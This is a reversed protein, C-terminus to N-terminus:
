EESGAEPDFIELPPIESSEGASLNPLIENEDLPFSLLGRLKKSSHTEQIFVSPNKINVSKMYTRYKYGGKILELLRHSINDPLYGIFRNKSNSVKIKHKSPEIEVQDGISLTSLVSPEGVSVLPIVKSKGPEEVFYINTNQPIILNPDKITKLRSINNKAIQNKPDVDLVSRFSAVAKTKKGLMSYAIGLRNLTPIDDPTTELIKENLEVAERWQKAVAAKIANQSLNQIDGSNNM